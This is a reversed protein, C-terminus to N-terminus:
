KNWRENASKSTHEPITLWQCNDKSYVGNNDIRDISAGEFYTSGMDKWFGEFTEWEAPYTVDEYGVDKGCRNKLRAWVHYVKTNSMGHKTRAALACTKCSTVKGRKLAFSQVERTNGCVCKCEYLKDGDSYKRGTDSAVTLKAYTNGVISEALKGM